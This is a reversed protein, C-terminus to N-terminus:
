SHDHRMTPEPETQLQDHERQHDVEDTADDDTARAFRDALDAM